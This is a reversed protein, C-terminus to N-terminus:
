RWPGPRPSCSWPWRTTPCACPWRARRRGLDWGVGPRRPLVLTLPAPGSRGSPASRARADVDVLRDVQALSAVLVPIALSRPRGKAEFLRAVAAPLSPDAAVGYVSDTPLVVLQGAALAAAALAIADPDPSAPDVLLLTVCDGGPSRGLVVRPRGALDELAHVEELTRRFLRSVDDAQTAGIEVVLWGGPRLWTPAEAALRAHVDTGGVLAEYPDARVEDPLEEYEAETVYPPNSM